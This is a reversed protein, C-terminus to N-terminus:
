NSLFNNRVFCHLLHVVFHLSWEFVADHESCGIGRLHSITWCYEVKIQIDYRPPASAPYSAPRDPTPIDFAFSRVFGVSTCRKVRGTSDAVSVDAFHYSLLVM